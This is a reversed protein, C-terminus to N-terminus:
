YFNIIQHGSIIPWDINNDFCISGSNFPTPSPCPSTQTNLDVVEPGNNGDDFEIQVYCVGNGVGCDGNVFGNSPMIYQENSSDTCGVGVTAECKSKNYVIYRHPISQAKVSNSFYFLFASVSLISLISCYM